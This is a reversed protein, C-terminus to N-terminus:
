AAIAVRKTFIKDARQYAAEITAKVTQINDDVHINYSILKYYNALMQPVYAHWPNNIIMKRDIITRTVEKGETLAIIIDDHDINIILGEWQKKGEGFTCMTGCCVLKSHSKFDKMQKRWNKQIRKNRNM